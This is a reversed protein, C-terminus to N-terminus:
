CFSNGSWAESRSVKLAGDVSDMDVELAQRELRDEPVVSRGEADLVDVESVDLCLYVTLLVASTGDDMVQQLGLSDFTTDGVQHYFKAAYDAATELEDDLARERAVEGYRDTDRWGGAGIANSIELYRGYLEEAAALAEEESAFVPTASPDPGPPPQVPDEGSACSSLGALTLTIGLATAAAASRMGVVTPLGRCGAPSNDV